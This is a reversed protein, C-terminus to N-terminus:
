HGPIFAFCYVTSHYTFMTETDGSTTFMFQYKFQVNIKNTKETV